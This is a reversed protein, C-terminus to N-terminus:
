STFIPSIGSGWFIVAVVLLSVFSVMCVTLISTAFLFGKEQNIGMILPVGKYLLNVSMAVAILAILMDLWLVPYTGLVGALLLPTLSYATLKLCGEYSPSAGYTQGMWKVFASIVAVAALIAFYSIVSLMIASESTLRYTEGSGVSWGVYTSGIFASVPPIAAIFILFSMYIRVVSEKKESIKPWEESPNYILAIANVFSM